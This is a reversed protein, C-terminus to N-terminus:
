LGPAAAANAAALVWQIVTGVDVPGLIDVGLPGVDMGVGAPGGGEAGGAVRLGRDEHLAHHIVQRLLQAHVRELEAALVVVVLDAILFVGDARLPDTPAVARFPSPLAGAGPAGAVAHGAGGPVAAATGASLDINRD